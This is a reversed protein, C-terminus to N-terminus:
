AGRRERKGNEGKRKGNRMGGGGQPSTVGIKPPCLPHTGSVQFKFGPEWGEESVQFRRGAGGKRCLSCMNRLVSCM